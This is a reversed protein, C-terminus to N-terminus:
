SKALKKLLKKGRSELGASSHNELENEMIATIESKLDPEALAVNFLTQMAHVRVAIPEKASTFIKICHDTLFGLSEAPIDNLSIIKLFHRKKGNNREVEMQKIMQPIFCRILGPEKEHVKDMLWAARWSKPENGYLAIQALVIVNESNHIIEHMLFDLNEWSNILDIMQEETM